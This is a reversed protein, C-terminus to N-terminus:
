VGKAMLLLFWVLLGVPGGVAILFIALLTWFTIYGFFSIM